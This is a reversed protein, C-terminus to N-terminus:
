IKTRAAPRGDPPKKASTQASFLALIRQALKVHEPLIPEERPEKWGIFIMGQVSTDSKLCLLLFSGVQVNRRYWLPLHNFIKKDYAKRIYINERRALCLGFVSADDLSIGVRNKLQIVHSGHGEVFRFGSYNPQRLFVWTENATFGHRLIDLLKAIPVKAAADLRDQQALLEDLNQRLLDTEAHTHANPTVPPPSDNVGDDMISNPPDIGDIRQKLAVLAANPTPTNGLSRMLVDVHARTKNLVPELLSQLDPVVKEFRAALQSSITAFQEASINDALTVEALQYAYDCIALLRVEPSNLKRAFREPKFERLSKLLIPSMHSSELLRRGLELPTLGFVERYANDPPLDKSLQEATKLEEVMYTALVIRGFGRLAGCIFALDSNVTGSREAVAQAMLGSCLSQLTAKRREDSDQWVHSSELLLLSMSLSRVRDFGIIQIADNINYIPVGSPNYGISNASAIVKELVVTDNKILEALEQVALEVVNGSLGHIMKVLEPM